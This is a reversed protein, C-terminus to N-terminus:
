RLVTPLACLIVSDIVAARNLVALSDRLPAFSKYVNGRRSVLQCAGGEIHAITAVVTGYVLVRRLKSM